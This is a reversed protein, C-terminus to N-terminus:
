KCSIGGYEFMDNFGVGNHKLSRNKPRQLRGSQTCRDDRHNLDSDCGNCWCLRTLKIMLTKTRNPKSINM